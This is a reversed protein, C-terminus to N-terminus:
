KACWNKALTMEVLLLASFEVRDIFKIPTFNMCVFWYMINEDVQGWVELNMTAKYCCPIKLNQPDSNKYIDREHNIPVLVLLIIM